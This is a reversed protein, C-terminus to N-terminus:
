GQVLVESPDADSRGDLYAKYMECFLRENWKTYIQFPQMTHSIDSAQILSELSITTKRNINEIDDQTSFAKEWNNNRLEKLSKDCIDTALIINVIIQRMLQYDDYDRYILARLEDYQEGVFLGWGIDVSHQEALAQNRYEDAMMPQEKQLQANPVGEHDADHILAAFVCAFKTLPDTIKLKEDQITVDVTDETAMKSLFRYVAVAM